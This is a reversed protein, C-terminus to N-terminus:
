NNCLFMLQSVKLEHGLMRMVTGLEETSIEGSGDEDFKKFADKFDLIQSPPPSPPPSTPIIVGQTFNLVYKNLATTSDVSSWFVLRRTTSTEQLVLTPRTTTTTIFISNFSQTQFSQTQFVLVTSKISHHACPMCILRHVHKQSPECINLITPM